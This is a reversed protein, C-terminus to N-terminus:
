SSKAILFIILERYDIALDVNSGAELLSGVDMLSENTDIRQQRKLTGGGTAM